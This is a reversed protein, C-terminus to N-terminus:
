KDIQITEEMCESISFLIVDLFAIESLQYLVVDFANSIQLLFCQPTIQM